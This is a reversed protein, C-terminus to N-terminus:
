EEGVRDMDSKICDEWQMISRGQRRKGNVKQADARQLIVYRGKFKRSIRSIDWWEM